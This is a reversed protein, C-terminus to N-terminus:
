SVHRAEARPKVADLRKEESSNQAAPLTSLTRPQVYSREQM